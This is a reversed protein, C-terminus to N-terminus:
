PPNDIVDNTDRPSITATAHNEVIIKPEWYVEDELTSTLGNQFRHWAACDQPVMAWGECTEEDCYCELALWPQTNGVQFGDATRYKTYGSRELYGDIFEDRTM